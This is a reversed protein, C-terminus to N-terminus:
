RNVIKYVAGKLGTKTTLFGMVFLENNKGVNCGCILFPDAPKNLIKLPQRIWTGQANKMLAFMSGNYDGFVYKNKLLPIEKGYYFSGGIICIGVKHNYTNIPSTYSSKNNSDSKEFSSDGEKVPWGYNTGKKVIDVEEERNEGVDGGIIQHTAPDFSYRWLKRFGYAWIEPRANKIGVFPNDAPITYPKKNVDIRLLKGHLFGLDQAHYKYTSDGAKDDGISIYLYSDPGFAIQAGNNQINHGELEFVRHESALDALDPNTKSVKFESVVLKCTNTHIKTPANYCVYFKNNTSFQPHFAVSFLTGVLSNKDQHGLKDYINLFPKALLSDNKLIWVKGSNDTIFMRHTNDPSLNLEVPAKIADTVLEYKVGISDTDAMKNKGPLGKKGPNNCAALFIISVLTIFCFHLGKM